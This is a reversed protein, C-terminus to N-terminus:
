VHKLFSLESFMLFFMPIRPHSSAQEQSLFSKFLFKYESFTNGSSCKQAM